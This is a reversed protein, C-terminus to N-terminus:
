LGLAPSCNRRRRWSGCRRWFGMGCRSGQRWRKRCRSLRKMGNPMMTAAFAATMEYALHAHHGGDVEIHRELYYLLLDLKGPFNRNLEKVMAMVIDPILDERGFTFMAAQIHPKDTAIVVFTHGVFARATEPIDAAQLAGGVPL